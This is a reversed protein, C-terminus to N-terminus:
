LNIQTDKFTLDFKTLIMKVFTQVITLIAFISLAVIGGIFNIPNIYPVISNESTIQGFPLYFISLVIASIGLWIPIATKIKYFKTEDDIKLINNVLENFQDIKIWDLYFYNERNNPSLDCIKMHFKKAEELLKDDTLYALGLLKSFPTESFEGPHNKISHVLEKLKHFYQNKKEHIIQLRFLIFMVVIGILAALTQSITSLTYFFANNSISYGYCGLIFFIIYIIISLSLIKYDLWDKLRHKSKGATRTSKFAMTSKM